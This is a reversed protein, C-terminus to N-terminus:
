GKFFMIAKDYYRQREILGNTGGNIRKTCALVDGRDALISLNNRSWFWYASLVANEPTTLLDPTRTLRDDGFLDYSCRAHNARGTVQILGHGAFAKGDGALENGLQFAKYNREAPKLDRAWRENMDREYRKQADTPGWIERTYKLCGSEHLIQALFMAMRLPTTVGYPAAYKNIYPVFRDAAKTSVPAVAKLLISTINM